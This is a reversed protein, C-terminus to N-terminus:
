IRSKPFINDLGFLGYPDIEKKIRVMEDIGKKGYMLELYKHKMKGIGHEASVTGGSSIGKKLAQIFLNGVAEKEKEDKPFFNFHLHNEGIHGFLINEIEQNNLRLTQYFNFIEPFSNEPVAIDLAMKRSGIKKFYENINEPLKHRFDLLKQYSKSDEGLWTDDVPYQEILGIWEELINKSEEEEIYIAEKSRDPINPFDKKLFGLSGRDFYELSLPNLKRSRKVESVFKLGKNEKFFVVMIFPLSLAPILEVEVRTILGLTGESGIFLDILDMGPRSFYGASCKIPPTLYSPIKIKKNEFEINGNKDAFYKGREIELVEGTSLIVKIKKVYGRTSGFRYSYEGSANTSVNGGIFATRETPFPPYFLNREGLEKLFDEILVGSQLIARKRQPDISIIKDLREVSLIAGELPIRGGVTGTGGASVTLPIKKDRCEAIAEIIEKEDEPIYLVEAKGEQLNSSDELYSLMEEVKRKIIM